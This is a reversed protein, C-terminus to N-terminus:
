KVGAANMLAGIAKYAVDKTGKYGNADEHCSKCDDLAIGEFTKGKAAKKWDTMMDRMAGKTTKGKCAGKYRAVDAASVGKGALAKSCDYPEDKPKVDGAEATQPSLAAIGASMGLTAVLLFRTLTRQSVM